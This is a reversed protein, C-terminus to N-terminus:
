AIAMLLRSHLTGECRDGITMSQAPSFVVEPYLGKVLERCCDASKSKKPFNSPGLKECLSDLAVIVFRLTLPAGSFSVAEPDDTQCLVLKVLRSRTLCRLAEVGTSLDLSPSVTVRHYGERADMKVFQQGSPTWVLFLQGSTVSCGLASLISGRKEPEEFSVSLEGVAMGGPRIGDPGSLPVAKSAPFPTPDSGALPMSREIDSSLSSSLKPRKPSPPIQGPLAAGCVSAGDSASSTAAPVDDMSQRDCPAVFTFVQDGDSDGDRRQPRASKRKRGAM